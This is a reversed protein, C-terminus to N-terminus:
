RGHSPRRRISATSGTLSRSNAWKSTTIYVSSVKYMKDIFLSQRLMAARLDLAFPSWNDTYQAFTRRLIIAARGSIMKFVALKHETKNKIRQTLKKELDSALQAVRLGLQDGAMVALSMYEHLERKTLARLGAMTPKAEGDRYKWLMDNAKPYLVQRTLRNPATLASNAKRVSGELEPTNTYPDLLTGPMCHFSKILGHGDQIFKYFCLFDATVEDQCSQCNQLPRGDALGQGIINLREQLLTETATPADQPPPAFTSDCTTWPFKVQARCSPCTVDVHLSDKENHWSLGTANTWAVKSTELVEYEFQDSTLCRAIMDWPLGSAWIDGRGRRMTDELYLRPNLMHTHWVM